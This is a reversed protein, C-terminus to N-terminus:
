VRAESEAGFLQLQVVPVLVTGVWPLVGPVGVFGRVHPDDAAVVAAGSRRAAGHLQGVCRCRCRPLRAEECRVAQRESLTRM